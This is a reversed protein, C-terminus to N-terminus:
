FKTAVTTKIGATEKWSDLSWGKSKAAMKVAAQSYARKLANIDKHYYAEATQNQLSISIPGVAAFTKNANLTFPMNLLKAAEELVKLNEAKFEVSILRVTYCPM